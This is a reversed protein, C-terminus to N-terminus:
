KVAKVAKTISSTSVGKKCSISYSYNGKTWTAVNVTYKSGSKKGKTYVKTKNVTLTKKAQYNTYVGSNDQNKGKSKRLYITNSKNKYTLEIMDGKIASIKNRPAGAIKDPATLGFGAIYKAERMTACRVWPNPVYVPTSSDIASGTHPVMTSSVAGNSVSSACMIVLLCITVIATIVKKM